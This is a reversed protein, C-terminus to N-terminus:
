TYHLPRFHLMVSIREGRFNIINNDQDVISVRLNYICEMIVKYYEPDIPREIIKETPSVSLPFEYLTSDRVQGDMVNCRTLNTKIRINQVRFLQVTQTSWIFDGTPPYLKREYGLLSGISNSGRMDLIWKSKIGVRRVSDIIMM